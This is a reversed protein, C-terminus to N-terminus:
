FLGVQWILLWHFLQNKSFMKWRAKPNGKEERKEKEKGKKLEEETIKYCLSSPHIIKPEEEQQLQKPIANVFNLPESQNPVGTLIPDPSDGSQQPLKSENFLFSQPVLKIKRSQTDTYLIHQLTVAM